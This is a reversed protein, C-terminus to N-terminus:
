YNSERAVNWKMGIKTKIPPDERRNADYYNGAAQKGSQDGCPARRAGVYVFRQAFAATGIGGAAAAVTQTSNKDDRLHGASADNQNDGAKEHATQLRSLACIKTKM